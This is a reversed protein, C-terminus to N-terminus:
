RSFNVGFNVASADTLGLFFVTLQKQEILVAMATLEDIILTRLLRCVYCDTSEHSIEVITFNNDSLLISCFQFYQCVLVQLLASILIPLGFM